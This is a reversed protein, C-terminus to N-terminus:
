MMHLNLVNRLNRSEPNELHSRYTTSGIGLKKGTRPLLLSKRGTGGFAGRGDMGTPRGKVASVPTIHSM